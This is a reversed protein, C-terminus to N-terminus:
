VQEVHLHRGGVHGPFLSRAPEHLQDAGPTSLFMRVDLEINEIFLRQEVRLLVRLLVPVQDHADGAVARIERVQRGRLLGLDDRPRVLLHVSASTRGGRRPGARSTAGVVVLHTISFITRVPMARDFPFAAPSASTFRWRIPHANLWTPLSSPMTM